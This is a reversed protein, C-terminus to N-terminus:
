KATIIEGDQNVLELGMQKAKRKLNNLVRGRYAKEYYDQGSDVYETGNKLM